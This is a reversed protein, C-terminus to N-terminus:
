KSGSQGFLATFFRGKCVDTNKYFIFIVNYVNIYHSNHQDIRYVHCQEGNDTQRESGEETVRGSAKKKTHM